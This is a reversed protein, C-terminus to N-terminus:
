ETAPQPPSIPFSVEHTRESSMASSLATHYVHSKPAKDGENLACYLLNSCSKLGTFLMVEKYYAASLNIQM